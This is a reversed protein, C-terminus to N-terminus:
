ALATRDRTAHRVLLAGAVIMPLTLTQGMTLGWGHWHLALGLPNGPTVFQADPQRVFEVLFRALGYGLVFTGTLLWRRRLGGWRFALLILVLGLLVYSLWSPRRDAGWATSSGSAGPQPRNLRRRAARAAGRGATQEIAAVSNM